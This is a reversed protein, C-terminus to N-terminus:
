LKDFADEQYIYDDVPIGGYPLNLIMLKDLKTNINAKTIKGKQLASCKSNYDVLDSETLKSPECLNADLIFYDQYNNITDLLRKINNITEYEEIAYKTEMLKSVKNNERTNSDNCKLAPTFVCGFGGSALVKGGKTNKKTKTM